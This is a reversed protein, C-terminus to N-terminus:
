SDAGFKHVKTTVIVFNVGEQQEHKCILVRYRGCKQSKHVSPFLLFKSTQMLVRRNSPHSGRRLTDHDSTM